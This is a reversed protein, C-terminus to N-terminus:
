DPHFLKDEIKLSRMQERIMDTRTRASNACYAELRLMEVEPLKITLVKVNKSM